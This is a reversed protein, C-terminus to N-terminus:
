APDPLMDPFAPALASSKIAGKEDEITIEFTVM